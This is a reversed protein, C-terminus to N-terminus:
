DSYHVDNTHNSTLLAAAQVAEDACVVIHLKAIGHCERALFFGAIRLLFDPYEECNPLTLGQEDALLVACLREAETGERRPGSSRERLSPMTVVPTAIKSRFASWESNISNLLTEAAHSAEPISAAIVTIDDSRLPPCKLLAVSLYEGFERANETGTFLYTNRLESRWRILPRAEGNVYAEGKFTVSSLASNSASNFASSFEDSVSGDGGGGSKQDPQFQQASSPLM